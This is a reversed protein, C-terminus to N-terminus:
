VLFGEGSNWVGGRSNIGTTFRGEDGGKGVAKGTGGGIDWDGLGNRSCSFTGGAHQALGEIVSPGSTGISISDLSASPELSTSSLAM